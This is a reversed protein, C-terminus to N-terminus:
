SSLSRCVTFVQPTPTAPPLLEGEAPGVVVGFFAAAAALAVLAVLVVAGVPSEVVLGVHQSLVLLLLVRSTQRM